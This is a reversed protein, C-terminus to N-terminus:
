TVECTSDVYDDTKELCYIEIKKDLYVSKLSLIVHTQPRREYGSLKGKLPLNRPVCLYAVASENKLLNQINEIIESRIKRSVASLVNNCVIMDYKSKLVSQDEFYYPDYKAWDYKDADFGYGCGYDLIDEEAKVLGKEFLIM